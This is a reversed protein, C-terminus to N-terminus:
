LIVSRKRYLEVSVHGNSIIDTDPVTVEICYKMYSPIESSCAETNLEDGMPCDGFFMHHNAFIHIVTDEEAQVPSGNNDLYYYGQPCVVQIKIYSGKLANNWYIAGEKLYVSDLFSFELSKRKFGTPASIDDNNNSFDWSLEKGDGIVTDSDGACTFFTNYGIPRSESRVIEKGEFDIPAIPINIQDKYNTEFDTQDSNIPSEKKIDTYTFIGNNIVWITYKNDKDLYQLLLNRDSSISKLEAWTVKYEM